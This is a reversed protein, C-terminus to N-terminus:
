AVLPGMTVDAIFNLSPEPSTYVNSSLLMGFINAPTDRNKDCDVKNLFRRIETKSMESMYYDMQKM